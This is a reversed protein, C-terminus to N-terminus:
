WIWMCGLEDQGDPDIDMALVTIDKEISGSARPAQPLWSADGAELNTPLMSHEKSYIRGGQFSSGKVPLARLKPSLFMLHVVEAEM